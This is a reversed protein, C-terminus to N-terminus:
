FNFYIFPNHAGMVLYSICVLFLFGYAIVRITEYFGAWVKGKIIQLVWRIVNTSLLLGLVVFVVYERSYWLWNDDIIPNGYMGFMSKIYQGATLISDSRFLVWCFMVAVFVGIRYLTKLVDSKFLEPKIVFKEIVLMAFYAMGWAIFTWNAGHWIGTM